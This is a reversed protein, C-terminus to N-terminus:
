RRAPHRRCYAAFGDRRGQLPKFGLGLCRNQWQYPAPRGWVMPAISSHDRVRAPRRNMSTGTDAANAPAATSGSRGPIALVLLTVRLRGLIQSTQRVTRHPTMSSFRSPLTHTPWRMTCASRRHPRRRRWTTASAVLRYRRPRPYGPRLRRSSVSSVPTREATDQFVRWSPQVVVQRFVEPCPTSPCTGPGSVSIPLRGSRPRRCRSLCIRCQGCAPIRRSASPRMSSSSSKDNRELAVDVHFDDLGEPVEPLQAIDM